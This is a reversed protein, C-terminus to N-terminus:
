KLSNYVCLVCQGCTCFWDILTVFVVNYHFLDACFSLKSYDSHEPQFVEGFQPKNGKALEKKAKNYAERTSMFLM